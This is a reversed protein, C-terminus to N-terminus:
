PTGLQQNIEQASNHSNPTPIIPQKLANITKAIEQTANRPNCAKIIPRGVVIYDAGAKIAEQPTTVRRQDDKDAGKPRIGPTVILKNKGKIRIRLIAAEQPSCVVGDAGNEFAREAREQVIDCIEGAKICAANLDKRELSTLVTIALIKTKASKKGQSAARVVQPDGHVSLFDVGFESFGKVAREITAGIDFLKLDLFVRKQDNKLKRALDLGGKALMGLGIKYFRGVDGIREVMRQGSKSDEVDLAIILKNNYSRDVDGIHEIVDQEHQSDEFDLITRSRDSM